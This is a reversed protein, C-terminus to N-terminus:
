SRLASIRRSLPRASISLRLVSVAKAHRPTSTLISCEISWAIQRFLQVSSPSTATAADTAAASTATGATTAPLSSHRRAPPHGSSHSPYASLHRLHRLEPSTKPHAAIPTAVLTSSAGHPSLSCVTLMVGCRRMGMLMSSISAPRRTTHPWRVVTDVM